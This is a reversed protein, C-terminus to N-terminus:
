TVVRRETGLVHIHEKAVDLVQEELGTCMFQDDEDMYVQFCWDHNTFSLGSVNLEVSLCSFHLEIFSAVTSALVSESILLFKLSFLLLAAASSGEIALELGECLLNSISSLIFTDIHVNRETFDSESTNWVSGINQNLWGSISKDLQGLRREHHDSEILDLNGM